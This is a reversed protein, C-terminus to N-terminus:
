VNKQEQTKILKGGKYYYVIYKYDNLQYTNGYIKIKAVCDSLNIEKKKKMKAIKEASLPTGHAENAEILEDADSILGGLMDQFALTLSVTVSILGFVKGGVAGIMSSLTLGLIANRTQIVSPPVDYTGIYQWEPIKLATFSKTVGWKKMEEELRGLAAANQPQIFTEEDIRSEEDMASAKMINNLIEKINSKFNHNKLVQSSVDSGFAKKELYSIYDSTAIDRNCSGRFKKSYTNKAKYEHLADALFKKDSKGLAISNLYVLLRADKGATSGIGNESAKELYRLRDSDSMNLGPVSMKVKGVGNAVDSKSWSGQLKTRSDELKLISLASDANRYSGDYFKIFDYLGNVMSILSNRDGDGIFRIYYVYMQLDAYIEDMVSKASSCWKKIDDYYSINSAEKMLGSIHNEENLAKFYENTGVIEGNNGKLDTAAKKLRLKIVQGDTYKIENSVNDYYEESKQELYDKM